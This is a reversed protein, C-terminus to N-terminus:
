VQKSVRERCSARGSQASRKLLEAARIESLASKMEPRQEYARQLSAEFDLAPTEFFSATDALELPQDPDLSLLRRLGQLSIELQATAETHRQRENQYEVNARLTDISTGVGNRQMDSALTFLAQALDLRSKAADIEAAARLSGLYQSVVLQANLERATIQEALSTNVGERAARWRNWLTLDLVPASFTPGAQVAWFPGSHNPFGPVQRGFLAELSARTVKESATLSVQPLLASRAITRGEQSQALNLNAIAVEPAQQLGMVVAQQLTLRIPAPKVEQAHLALPAFMAMALVAVLRAVLGGSDFGEARMEEVLAKMVVGEARFSAGARHMRHLLRRGDQDVCTVGRLDVELHKDAPAGAWAFEAEAVWAGALKGELQLQWSTADGHVTLRLM